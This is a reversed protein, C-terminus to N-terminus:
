LVRHHSQECRSRITAFDEAHAPALAAPQFRLYAVDQRDYSLYKRQEFKRFPMGLMVSRVEDQSLHDAQQMRMGAESLPLGQQLRDLYFGHFRRVM